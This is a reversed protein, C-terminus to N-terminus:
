DNNVETELALDIARKLASNSGYLKKSLAATFAAYINDQDEQSRHVVTKNGDAWIVTTRDGCKVIKEPAIRWKVFRKCERFFAPKYM